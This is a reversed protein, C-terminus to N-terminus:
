SLMEGYLKMLSKASAEWTFQRVRQTVRRHAADDALLRAIGARLSDSDQPAVYVAEPGFYERTSGIETILVPKGVAAAELAAISPTELLSPMAFGACAALASRLLDSGYALPGLEIFRDQGLARCERAYADDRAHGINVLCLDDFELLAAMFALQNKRPEVNAVNLLFRRGALAPFVALFEAAGAPELFTREFGNYAVAFREPPLGYVSGLATAELESNVLVRDALHILPLIDSHPYQHRTEETVWLNPSILLKLGQRKIHDCLQISGPMVSFFHFIESERIKPAWPDFLTVGVGAAELHAKWALLQREGGGPCDFAWPYVGFLVNM